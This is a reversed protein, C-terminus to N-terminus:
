SHSNTYVEIFWIMKLEHAFIISQKSILDFDIFIDSVYKLQSTKEKQPSPNQSQLTNLAKIRRCNM